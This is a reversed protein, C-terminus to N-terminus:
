IDPIRLLFELFDLLYIVFLVFALLGGPFHETVLVHRSFSHQSRLRGPAWWPAAQPEQSVDEQAGIGLRQSHAESANRPHQSYSRNDLGGKHWNSGDALVFAIAKGAGREVGAQWLRPWCLGGKCMCMGKGLYCLFFWGLRFIVVEGAWRVRM